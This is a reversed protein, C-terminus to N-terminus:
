WIQMDFITKRSVHFVYTIIENRYWIPFCMQTARRTEQLYRMEDLACRRRCYCEVMEHKDLEFWIGDEHARRVGPSSIIVHADGISPVDADVRGLNGLRTAHNYVPDPLTVPPLGRITLRYETRYTSEVSPSPRWVDPSILHRTSRLMLRPEDRGFHLGRTFWPTVHVYRKFRCNVAPASGRKIRRGNLTM